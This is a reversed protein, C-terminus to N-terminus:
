HLVLNKLARIAGLLSIRGFVSGGYALKRLPIFFPASNVEGGGGGVWRLVVGRDRARSHEPCLM